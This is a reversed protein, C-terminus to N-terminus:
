RTASNWATESDGPVDGISSLAEIQEMARLDRGVPAYVKEEADLWLEMSLHLALVRLYPPLTLSLPHYSLLSGRSECSLAVLSMLM